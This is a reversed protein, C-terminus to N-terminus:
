TAKDASPKERPMSPGVNNGFPSANQEPTPVSTTDEHTGHAKWRAGLATGKLLPEIRLRVREVTRVTSEIADLAKKAVKDLLSM